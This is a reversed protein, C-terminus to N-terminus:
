LRSHKSTAISNNDETRLSQEMLEIAYEAAGWSSQVGFGGHGYAHTVKFHLAPNNRIVENEIRPGGKRGPRLGVVSRLVELKKGAISLLDPCLETTRRLIQETTKDDPFPTYDNIGTTGGLVITGDSRPIIYLIDQKRSFTITEKIHSGKVIVTQGRSPFLAQDRVGGLFKSGLGTCNIVIPPESHKDTATTYTHGLTAGKPISNHEATLFQFFDSIIFSVSVNEVVDKFWPHSIEAISADEYYDYSPMVMIGHKGAKNDRALSMFKRYSVTDFKQLLKNDNSAMTRWHARSTDFTNNLSDSVDGPIFKAVVTVNKYGKQKLLLATTLGIVGAGLVIIEANSM